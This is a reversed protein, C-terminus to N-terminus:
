RAQPLRFIIKRFINNKMHYKQQWAEKIRGMKVKGPLATERRTGSGGCCPFANCSAQIKVTHLIFIDTLLLLSYLGFSYAGELKQAFQPYGKARLRLFYYQMADYLNDM